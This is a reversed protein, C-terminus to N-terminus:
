IAGKRRLAELLLHFYVMGQYPHWCSTLKKIQDYDPKNPLHFLRQLNNRAGVDDGPFIDLRGLGRLLAYEASWRGIGRLTTLYRMIEGNTKEDLHIFDAPRHAFTRALEGIARAKQTSYGLNRIDSEAARELDEPRPFAHHMPGKVALGIGFREALRNILLIGVDLTLQQCAVANVLAEFLTPFRPAKVGSFEAALERLPSKEAALRSFPRLDIELGLMQRVVSLTSEVLRESIAEQSYLAISLNPASGAGEQVAVIEIPIDNLVLVRSYRGADWRDVRNAERRRLACVTLELRFPPIASLTLKRQEIVAEGEELLYPHMQGHPTTSQGTPGPPMVFVMFAVAFMGFVGM